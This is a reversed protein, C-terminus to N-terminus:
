AFTACIIPLSCRGIEAQAFLCAPIGAEHAQLGNGALRSALSESRFCHGFPFAVRFQSGQAAKGKLACSLLAGEVVNLGLLSGHGHVYRYDTDRFFCPHFPLYKNIM